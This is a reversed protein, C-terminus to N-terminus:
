AARTSPMADSRSAAIRLSASPAVVKSSTARRVASAWHAPRRVFLERQEQARAVLEDRELAELLLAGHAGRRAGGLRGLAGEDRPRQRGAHVPLSVARAREVRGHARELAELLGRHDRDEVGVGHEALRECQAAQAVRERPQALAALREHQDRRRELKGELELAFGAAEHQRQGGRRSISM